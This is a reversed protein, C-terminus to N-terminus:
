QDRRKHYAVVMEYLEKVWEEAATYARNFPKVDGDYTKKNISFVTGSDEACREYATEAPLTRKLVYQHGFVDNLENMAGEYIDSDHKNRRNVTKLDKSIYAGIFSLKAPNYGEEILEEIVEPLREIFRVSSDFNFFTPPVPVMIADTAAICNKMVKDMHPGADFLIIDYDYEVLDTIREQLLNFYKSGDCIEPDDIDDALFGDATGCPLIDVQPNSTKKIGLGSNILMERTIDPMAMATLSTIDGEKIDYGPLYHQTTTAQPDLDVILVRHRLMMYRDLLTIGDVFMITSLSKGVGGKLNELILKFAKRGHDSYRPVGMEAAIFLVDDFTFKYQNNKGVREFERDKEAAIEEIKATLNKEGIRVHMMKLITHLERKSYVKTEADSKAEVQIYSRNERAEAAREGLAVIQDYDM